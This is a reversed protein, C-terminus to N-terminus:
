YHFVIPTRAKNTCLCHRSDHFVISPLKKNGNKKNRLFLRSIKLTDKAVQVFWIPMASHTWRLEFYDLAQKTYNSFNHCDLIDLVNDLSAEPSLHPDKM